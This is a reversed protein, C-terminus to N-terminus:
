RAAAGYPPAAERVLEIRDEPPIPFDFVESLGIVLDPVALSRLTGEEDYASARSYAEGDLAYVEVLSPYPNALWVEGVGYKAYLEMKRMRDHSLTSPSLIEVVLTPAGEIHTRKIQTSDCVVLLDPQVVDEDSLKVDTPAPMVTCPTGKFFEALQALLNAVVIQHRTSPASTMGFAEGDIIEWREDDPWTRYDSWTYRRGGKERQPSVSAGGECGSGSAM